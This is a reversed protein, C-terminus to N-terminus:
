FEMQSPLPQTPWHTGIGASELVHSLRNTGREQLKKAFLEWPAQLVANAPLSDIVDQAVDKLIKGTFQFEMATPHGHRKYCSIRLDSKHSGIAFGKGGRDKGLRKSTPKSSYVNVNYSTGSAQLTQGTFLVSDEGVDAMITRIDFRRLKDYVAKFPITTVTKAMEGWIDVTYIFLGPHQTPFSNVKHVSEFKVDFIGELHSAAEKLGDYWVHFYDSECNLLLKAYDPYFKADTEPIM